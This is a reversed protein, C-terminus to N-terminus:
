DDEDVVVDVFGGEGQKALAIGIDSGGDVSALEGSLLLEVQLTM